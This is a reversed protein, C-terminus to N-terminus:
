YRRVNINHKKLAYGIQRSTINLLRAAKARVGRAEKMAWILREREGEPKGDALIPESAAPARPAPSSPIAPAAPAAAATATAEEAEPNAEVPAVADDKKVFHLVQTLCRNHACPFDDSDVRNGRSMTAVREICNELERVNGPWYCHQLVAQAADTFAIRRQNEANFRSIFHSALAPIDDPRERLPPLFISVVNIRFYLDSRFTGASIMKELNRNTACVLRVDVKIPKNGGVREFEREQLVRLLKTQFAPSIDGIEDMFLTGGDAMEFRGKRVNVAGTFAGKEHGFLESELLTESLAACNIKVFPSNKRPSLEHIARAIVEKGTGSEGRLLVTARTPAVQHAESFVEQMRRSKGVVNDLAFGQPHADREQETQLVLRQREETIVRRLAVAQGILNAVMTLLRVDNSFNGEADARRDITLVGIVNTAARIPVGVFAIPAGGDESRSGTRNLYLPETSIDPIVNPTGLSFIRGIVGEGPKYRAGQSESMTLGVAAALELDGDEEDQLLLMSRRFGLLHCLANLGQRLTRSVDLSSGLIKSIEYVAILELSARNKLETGTSIM